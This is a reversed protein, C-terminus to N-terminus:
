KTCFRNRTKTFYYIHTLYYPLTLYCQISRKILPNIKTMFILKSCKINFIASKLSFSCSLHACKQGWALRVGRPSQNPVESRFKTRIFSFQDIFNNFWAMQLYKAEMCCLTKSVCNMEKNVQHFQNREISIALSKNPTTSRTLDGRINIALLSKTTTKGGM